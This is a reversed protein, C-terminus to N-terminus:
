SVILDDVDVNLIGAITKLVKVSGQKRGTELAALYARSIDARAALNEQTFNRYKRYAKIPHEECLAIKHVLEAPFCEGGEARAAELAKIDDLMEADEVLREYHKIPLMIFSQGNKEIIEHRM